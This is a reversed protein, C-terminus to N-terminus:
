SSCIKRLDQWQIDSLIPKAQIGAPLPKIRAIRDKTGPHTSFVNGLALVTKNEIQPIEAAMKEFFAKFGLPDIRAREMMSLAYADADREADRSSRLIAALGALNATSSNATGGSVVSLLLQLGTVRILQAEPHLHHAHGMEHALVGAVEEPRDAKKILGSTLVIGGGPLTFANVLPMDYVRIRIPPLDPNGEALAATMVTLAREGAAQTCLKAGEALSKELGDGVQRSWRAPILGAFQQPAYTLAFHLIGALLSLCGVFWAGYKFLSKGASGPKLQPAAAVIREALFREAINLRAGPASPHTLRLMQGLRYPEVSGLNGTRWQLSIGNENSIALHDASVIITVQHDRATKGDFFVGTDPM